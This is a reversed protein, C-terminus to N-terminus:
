ILTNDVHLNSYVYHCPCIYSKISSGCEQQVISAGCILFVVSVVNHACVNVCLCYVSLMYVGVWMNICVCMYAYLYACLCLPGHVVCTFICAYYM